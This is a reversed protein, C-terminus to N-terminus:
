QNGVGVGFFDVDNSGGFNNTISPLIPTLFHNAAKETPGATARNIGLAASARSSRAVGPFVLPPSFENLEDLCGDDRAAIKSCDRESPWLVAFATYLRWEKPAREFFRRIEREVTEPTKRDKPLAMWCISIAQRVTQDMHSPGFMNAIKGAAIEDDSDFAELSGKQLL